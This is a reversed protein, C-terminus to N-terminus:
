LQAAHPLPKGRVGALLNEVAINGMLTRTEYTASGIHPLVFVNDYKLLPDQPDLPEPTTVDLGVSGLLSESLARVLDDQKVLGGRASNVFVVSKKMKKFADYDFMEKTQSTLACTVCIVDSERLLTDFDVKTAGIEGAYPKDSNGSYIIKGNAGIFPKLRIATAKGIRGLGVIGVTKNSLQSGIMYTPTWIGWTGNLVSLIGERIRRAAGLVLIVTLDATADTLVGPTYGLPINRKRLEKVDVHDYGVSVTSVVKIQPGTADLLEKDIKNSLTCLIGDVGKVKKLLEERPILGDKWIEVEVEEANELLKESDPLLAQTVLVKPRRVTNSTSTAMYHRFYIQHRDAQLPIKKCRSLLKSILLFSFSM